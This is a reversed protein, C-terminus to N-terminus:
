FHRLLIAMVICWLVIQICWVIVLIRPWRLRDIKTTNQDIQSTEEPVYTQLDERSQIHANLARDKLPHHQGRWQLLELYWELMQYVHPPAKNIRSWRTWASPHVKLIECIQSPRLGLQKRIGELTGTQDQFVKVEAEHRLRRSSRQRSKESYLEMEM